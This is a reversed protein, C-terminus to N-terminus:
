DVWTFSRVNKKACLIWIWGGVGGKGKNQVRESKKEIEQEIEITTWRIWQISWIIWVFNWEDKMGREKFDGAGWWRSKVSM